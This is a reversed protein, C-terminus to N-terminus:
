PDQRIIEVCTTGRKGVWPVIEDNNMIKKMTSKM